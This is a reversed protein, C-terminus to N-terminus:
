SRGMLPFAGLAGVVHAEAGAASLLRNATALSRCATAIGQISGAKSIPSVSRPL